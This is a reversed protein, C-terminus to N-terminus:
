ASVTATTSVSATEERRPIMQSEFPKIIVLARQEVTAEWLKRRDRSHRFKLVVRGAAISTIKLRMGNNRAEKEIAIRVERTLEVPGLSTFHAGGKVLTLAFGKGQDQQHPVTVGEKGNPFLYYSLISFIICSLILYDINKIKQLNEM